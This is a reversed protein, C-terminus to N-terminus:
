SDARRLVLAANVGGFGSNTSLAWEGSDLSVMDSCVWDAADEAPQSLGVTPPAVAERQARLTLLTEVLGAAGMTHGTAGKVSFAPKPNEFITKFAKLEMSDNYQTGTGHACIMSVTDPEISARKLAAEISRALAGGDRSPGTMHNADNSMGWGAVEGLSTRNEREAREASMLVVFGAAEGVSLGQRDADFPRAGMPDLAMLSAFGSYVFESVADCAVVVACDCENREIMAAAQAIAVTSSACASSIVASEREGGIRSSVKRLLNALKSSSCDTEGADVAQELLDIEGTTSALFLPAEPPIRADNEELLREIMQWVMSKGSGSSLDNIVAACHCQFPDTSFRNIPVVAPRKEMLASWCADLGAGCATLLDGDVVCVSM